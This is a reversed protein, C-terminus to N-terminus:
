RAGSLDLKPDSLDLRYMVQNYDYRPTPNDNGSFTNTYTGEFYIIKGNEQDFFPHHAPNYFSYRDHTVIKRGWLYPGQPQDSETYWVEGLFSPKGFHQVAILIWKKRFPNWAVSGAHLRVEAKTEVDRLRYWAEDGKMAGSKILSAQQNDSLPPTNKKWAWVLKGAADREFPTGEKQYRAGPALCTFGEYAAPTIVSTWDAKVRLTAYPAPFYFYEVGGDVYRFPHGTPCLPEDRELPALDEFASREDNYVILKRGLPESLSKLLECKAVMREQGAPDKLVMFGDAWRLNAGPVMPRSFGHEDVFYRLNIGVSPDLGGHEPLDSVAGAMGFHGLPYSARNTDGWFWHIQGRYIVRQVSDQGLVQANLVPQELPTKLDALVSDRYIGEGTVRYLRQAINLRKIKLTAEGGPKIDLGVGRIGFGDKPSEYGHSSVSFFVRQNMLGPENFAVVGASDTVYRLHNVTILEVLPVGRETQDDVVRIIFYKGNPEAGAVTSVGALVCLM